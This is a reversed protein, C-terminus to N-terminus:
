QPAWHPSGLAQSPSLPAADFAAWRSTTSTPPADALAASSLTARPSTPRLSATVPLPIFTLCVFSAAQVQYMRSLTLCLRGTSSLPLGRVLSSLSFSMSTTGTINVQDLLAGIYSGQANTAAQPVVNFVPRWIGQQSALFGSGTLTIISSSTSCNYTSTGYDDCGSVSTLTLPPFASFSVLSM